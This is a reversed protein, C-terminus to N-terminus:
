SNLFYSKYYDEYSYNQIPKPKSDKKSDLILEPNQKEAKEITSRITRQHNKYEKETLSLENDDIAELDSFSEPDDNFVKSAEIKQKERLAENLVRLKNLDTANEDGSLALKNTQLEKNGQVEEKPAKFEMYVRVRFKLKLFGIKKKFILIAEGDLLGNEYKLILHFYISFNFVKLISIRGHAIVYGKFIVDNYYKRFYLGARFSLEGEAIGFNFSATKGFEILIELGVIGRKPEIIMVFYGIGPFGYAYIKFPVTKSNIGLLIQIPTNARFPISLGINFKLNSFQIVGGNIDPIPLLYSMRIGRADVDFDLVKTLSEFYKQLASVFKLVGTFHVDLIKLDVDEKQNTGATIAIREFDIRISKCFTIGFNGIENSTSLQLDTFRPPRKLGDFKIVASLNARFAFYTTGKNHAHFEVFSFSASKISTTRWSSEIKPNTIKKVLEQADKLKKYFRKAQQVNKNSAIDSKLKKLWNEINKAFESFFNGIDKITDQKNTPNSAIKNQYDNKANEGGLKQLILENYEKKFKSFHADFRTRTKFVEIPFVEPQGNIKADKYIDGFLTKTDSSINELESIEKFILEISANFKVYAILESDEIYGTEIITHLFVKKIEAYVETTLRLADAYETKNSWLVKTAEFAQDLGSFYKQTLEISKVLENYITGKIIIDPEDKIKKSISEIFNRLFIEGLLLDFEDRDNKGITNILDATEFETSDLNRSYKSKYHSRFQSDNDKFISNTIGETEASFKNRKDSDIGRFSEQFIAYENRIERFEEKIEGFEDKIDDVKGELDTFTKRVSEFNLLEMDKLAEFIEKLIEITENFSALINQASEVMKFLPFEKLELLALIDLLRINGIINPNLGNLVDKSDHGVERIEKNLNFEGFRLKTKIIALKKTTAENLEPNVSTGIPLRSIHSIITDAKIIHTYTGVGKDYLGRISKKNKAILDWEKDLTFNEINIEESLFAAFIELPNKEQDYDYYEDVFSINNIANPALNKIAEVEVRAYYLRSILPRDESYSPNINAFSLTYHTTFVGNKINEIQPKENILVVKGDKDLLKDEYAETFAIKRRAHNIRYFENLAKKFNNARLLNKRFKEKDTKPIFVLSVELDIENDDHDIAIFPFKYLETASYNM